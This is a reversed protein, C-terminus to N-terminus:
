RHGATSEQQELQLLKLKLELSNITSDREAIARRMEEAMDKREQRLSELEMMYLKMRTESEILERRLVETEAHAADLAKRLDATQEGGASAAGTRLAVTLATVVDDVAEIQEPRAFAMLLGTEKHFRVEAAAADEDFMDLATEIATLVDEAPMGGKIIEALSWVESAAKAPRSGRKEPVASVKYIVSQFLAGPVAEVDVVLAGDPREQRLGDLLRIAATPDVRKLEVPQMDLQHVEPTVLVNLFESAECLAEIYDAASGGPFRLDIPRIAGTEPQETQAGAPTCLLMAVLLMMTSPVRSRIM